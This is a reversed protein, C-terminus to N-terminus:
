GLRGVCNETAFANSVRVPWEFNDCWEVDVLFRHHELGPTWEIQTQWGGPTGDRIALPHQEWQISDGVLLLSHASPAQISSTQKRSKEAEPPSWEDIKRAMNNALKVKFYGSPLAPAVM